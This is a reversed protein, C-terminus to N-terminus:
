CVCLGTLSTYLQINHLHALDPTAPPRMPQAPVVNGEKYKKKLNSFIFNLSPFFADSNLYLASSALGAGDPSLSFFLAM